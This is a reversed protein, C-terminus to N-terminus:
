QGAGDALALAPLPIGVSICTGQGPSSAIHLTWELMLARERLGMLGFSGPKREGDSAFGIGNDEIDLQLRAGHCAIRVQAESAAAHKVVNNLSEQVIRFLATDGEEGVVVDDCAHNILTVRLGDAQNFQAVLWELGALVGLDLAVPRLASTIHRMIGITDDLKDKMALIREVLPPLAAGFDLRLLSLDMRLVTLAQGLEDHVERAIRKREEDRVNEMHASLERLRQRSVTLALESEKRESVDLMVGECIVTGNRSARPTARCNIWKETGHMALTCGDWNWQKMSAAATRLSDEFAQRDREAFRMRLVHWDAKIAEPALGLLETAGESVHTFALTQDAGIQCQFVMGPTNETIRHIRQESDRLEDMARVYDTVDEAIGATRYAEGEDNFIPFGRVHILRVAGDARVMRYQLSFGAGGNPGEAKRDVQYQLGIWRDDPHIAKIWSAPDAYLSACSRGFIREYAPSIYLMVTNGRDTLFVVENINEALQRFQTESQRLEMEVQQRGVSESELRALNRRLQELLVLKDYAVAIQTAVALLVVEDIDSFADTGAKDGLYLCGYVRGSAAIPVALISDLPPHCLPLGARALDGGLGHRRLPSRRAMVTEVLGEPLDADALRTVVDPSIGIATVPACSLAGPHPIVI